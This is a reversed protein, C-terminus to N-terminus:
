KLGYGLYLAFAIHAAIALVLFSALSAHFIRWIRMLSKLSRYFGIQLRLRECQLFDDHFAKRSEDDPFLSAVRRLALRSRLSQLPLTLM